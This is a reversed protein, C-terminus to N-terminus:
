RVEPFDTSICLSTSSFGNYRFSPPTDTTKVSLLSDPNRDILGMKYSRPCVVYDTNLICYWQKLWPLAPSCCDPFCSAYYLISHKNWAHQVRLLGQLLLLEGPLGLPSNPREKAKCSQTNAETVMSLGSVSININCFYLHMFILFNHFQLIKLFFIIKYRGHQFYSFTTNANETSDTQKLILLHREISQFSRSLKRKLCVFCM